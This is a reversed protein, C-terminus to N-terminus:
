HRDPREEQEGAKEKGARTPHPCLPLPGARYTRWRGMEAGGVEKAKTKDTQEMLGKRHSDGHTVVKKSKQPETTEREGQIGQRDAGKRGELM